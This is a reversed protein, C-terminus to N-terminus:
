ESIYTREVEFSEINDEFRNFIIRMEQYSTAISVGKPRSCKVQLLTNFLGYQQSAYFKKPCLPSIFGEIALQNLAAIGLPSNLIYQWNQQEEEATMLRWKEANITKNKTTNHAARVSKSNSDPQTKTCSYVIILSVLTIWFVPAKFVKFQRIFLQYKQRVFEM